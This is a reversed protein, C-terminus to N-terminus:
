VMQGLVTVFLAVFVKFFFSFSFHIFMLLMLMRHISSNAFKVKGADVIKAYNTLILSNQSTVVINLEM